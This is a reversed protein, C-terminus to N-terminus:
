RPCDPCSGGLGSCRNVVQDMNVGFSPVREIVAPDLEVVRCRSTMSSSYNDIARQNCGRQEYTRGVLQYGWGQRRVRDAETTSTEAARRIIELGVCAATALDQSSPSGDLLV